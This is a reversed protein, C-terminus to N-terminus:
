LDSTSTMLRRGVGTITVQRVVEPTGGLRRGMARPRTETGSTTNTAPRGMRAIATTRWLSIIM